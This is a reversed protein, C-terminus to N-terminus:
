IVRSPIVGRGMKRQQSGMSKMFPVTMSGVLAGTDLYIQMDGITREMDSLKQGLKSIGDTISTLDTPKVNSEVEMKVGRTLNISYDNNAGFQSSTDISSFLTGLEAASKRANTLDIVPSITPEFEAGSDILAYVKMMGESMANIAEDSIMKAPDTVMKINDIMGIGVGEDLYRGMLITRKSPSNIQAVSMMVDLAEAVVNGAAQIVGNMAYNSGMGESVGRTIYEGIRYFPGSDLGDPMATNLMVDKIINIANESSAKLANKSESDNGEMGLYLNQIYSRGILQFKKAVDSTNVDSALDTVKATLSKTDISEIARQFAEISFGGLNNALATINTIAEIASTAAEINKVNAGAMNDSLGKIGTGFRPLNNAFDKMRNSDAIVDWFWASKGGSIAEQTGAISQIAAIAIDLTGGNVSETERSFASIGKGLLEINTAFDGLDPFTTFWTNAPLNQWIGAVAEGVWVARSVSEQNIKSGKENTVIDNFSVIAAALLPLNLSFKNLDKEGFIDQFVGGTKPLSNWLGSVMEGAHTAIEVSDSNIISKGEKTVTDNFSVIGKALLPLNDAFAQMDVEGGWWQVFGGTKPICSALSTMMKGAHVANEVSSSDIDKTYIDFEQLGKGLAGINKTFTDMDTTGTILQILGGEKPIADTLSKMAESVLKINNAKATTMEPFTSVFTNLYPSFGALQMGLQILSGTGSFLTFLDSIALVFGSGVLAMFGVGLATMKEAFDPPLASVADFFPQALSSFSSLTAGGIGGLLGGILSGIAEGIAQFMPVSTELSSLILGDTVSTDLAGLTAALLTFIAMAITIVGILGFGASIISAGDIKFAGMIASLAGITLAFPAMALMAASLVEAYKTITEPNANLATLAALVGGLVAIVGGVAILTGLLPKISTVKSSAAQLVSLSLIMPSVGIFAISLGVALEGMRIPNIGTKDIAGLVQAMMAAILGVEAVVSVISGIKSAKSAYKQVKAIASIMPAASAFMTAMVGAYIILSEPDIKTKELLVIVGVLSSLVLAIEAIIGVVQFFKVKKFAKNLSAFSWMLASLSLIAGVMAGAVAGMTVADLGSKAIIDFLVIIPTFVAALMVTMKIMSGIPVKKWSKIISPLQKAVHQIMKLLLSISVSAAIADVAELGNRILITMLAGLGTVVLMMAALAPIADKVDNKLKSFVKILTMVSLLVGVVVRLNNININQRIGEGIGNILVAIIKGLDYSLSPAYGYAWDLIISLIAELEALIYPLYQTIRLLVMSVLELAGEAIKDGGDVIADVVVDILRVIARKIKDANSMILPAALALAAISATLVAFALAIRGASASTKGIIKIAVGLGIMAGSLYLIIKGLAGLGTALKEPKMMGLAFIPLVLASIAVSVGLLSASIIKMNKVLDEKMSAIVALSMIASVVVLLVKAMSEFGQKFKDPKMSGFLGIPAALASLGLALITLSSTIKVISTTSDSGFKSSAMKDIVVLFAITSGIIVALQAISMLVRKIAGIGKNITADDLSGLTVIAASIAIVVSSFSTLLLSISGLLSFIKLSTALGSALTKLAVGVSQSLTAGKVSMKNVSDSLVDVAIIVAALIITIKAFAEVAYKLRDQDITSLAIISAIIVGVGYAIKLFAESQLNLKIGKGVDKVANFFTKVGKTASELLNKAEEAIEGISKISARLKIMSAVFVALKAIDLVDKLNVGELFDIIKSGADGIIRTFSPVLKKLSNIADSVVAVILDFVSVVLRGVPGLELLSERIRNVFEKTNNAVEVFFSEVKSWAKQLSETNFFGEFFSGITRKDKFNNIANTLGEFIGTALGKLNPFKLNKINGLIEGFKEPIEYIKDVAADAFNNVVDYIHDLFETVNNFAPGLNLSERVANSIQLIINGLVGGIALLIKFLPTVIKIIKGIVIVVPTLVSVIDRVITFVGTLIDTISRLTKESPILSETFSNFARSAKVMSEYIVNGTPGIDITDTLEELYRWGKNYEFLKDLAKGMPSALGEIISLMNHFAQISENRGGFGAWATLVNNRFEAISSMWKEIRTYINTWMETAEELDGFIIRFSSAWGGSREETLADIMKSFSTINRAAAAAAKGLETSEDTYKSLAAILVDNTLWRSALENRMTETDMLDSVKGKLDTTLSQYKEGVKVVTGMEVATDLLVQKFNKTAMGALELSKWDMLGMYGTSLAQSTNYIVQNAQAGEVGVYAMANGLGEMATVSLGLDLGSNVFKTINETMFAFDYVTAQAYSQLEKLYKTVTDLSDGTANMLVKTSSNISEYQGFGEMLGDVTLSKVMTKGLDVVSDTLNRLVNQGIMGMTTFKSSIIDLSKSVDNDFDLSKELEELTKKTREANREFEQNVFEMQVIRKDIETSM